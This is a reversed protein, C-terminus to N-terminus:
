EVIYLPQLAFNQIFKLLMNSNIFTDGNKIDNLVHGNDSRTYSATSLGIKIM